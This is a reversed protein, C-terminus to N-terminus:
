SFHLVRIESVGLTGDDWTVICFRANVVENIQGTRFDEDYRDEVCVGTEVAHKAQDITM